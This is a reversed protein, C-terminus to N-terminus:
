ARKKLLKELKALIFQPESDKSIFDEAGLQLAKTSHEARQSESLFVLPIERLLEDGRIRAALSLGDLKAVMIESVILDPKNKKMGSLASIGDPYVTANANIRKLHALLQKSYDPDSDIIAVNAQESAKTDVPKILEIIQATIVPDLHKGSTTHYVEKLKEVQEDTWEALHPNIKEFISLASLIKSSLPISEGKLGLPGRGDFREPICDFSHRFRYVGDFIDALRKSSPKIKEWKYFLATFYVEDLEKQHHTAVRAVRVALSGFTQAIRRQEVNGQRLFNQLVKVFFERFKEYQISDEFIEEGLNEYIRIECSPNRKLVASEFALEDGVVTSNAWVYNFKESVLKKMAEESTSVITLSKESEYSLGAIAQQYKDKPEILLVRKDVIIAEDLIDDTESLIGKVSGSQDSTSMKQQILRQVTPKGGLYLQLHYQSSLEAIDPDSQFDTAGDVVLSLTSKEKDVFFLLVGNKLQTQPSLLKFAADEIRLSKLRGKTIWPIQLSESISQVLEDESLVADKLLLDYAAKGKYRTADEVSIKNHTVLTTLLQNERIFHRQQLVSLDGSSASSGFQKGLVQAEINQVESIIDECKQYRDTIKKQMCKQILKGFQNNLGPSLETPSPPDFHVIKYLITSSNTGRFPLTQTAAEYLLTGLCFIDSRGDLNKGTIHEPSLYHTSGLVMGTSTLKMEEEDIFKAIGFDLIKAIGTSAEVIINSPKIDRHVIGRRHAFGLAGAIEKTLKVLGELSMKGQSKIIQELTEGEIYEMVIFVIEGAEGFDYVQVINPHSLGGAARAENFFRDRINRRVSEDKVRDSIMKIAVPRKLRTDFGKFILGMGGAGIREQLEYRDLTKPIDKEDINPSKM